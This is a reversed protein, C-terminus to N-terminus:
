VSRKGRGHETDISGFCEFVAVSKFAQLLFTRFLIVYEEIVASTNFRFGIVGATNLAADAVSMKKRTANLGTAVTSISCCVTLMSPISVVSFARPRWSGHTNGRATGMTSAIAAM